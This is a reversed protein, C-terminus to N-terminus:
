NTIPGTTYNLPQRAGQKEDLTSNLHDEFFEAISGTRKYNLFKLVPGRTGKKRFSYFYVYLDDDIVIVSMTPYTDRVYFRFRDKWYDGGASNRAVQFSRIKERIRVRNEHATPGEDVRREEVAHGEPDLLVLRVNLNSSHMLSRTLDDIDLNDLVIGEASVERKAGEILKEWDISSYDQFTYLPHPLAVIFPVPVIAFAIVAAIPSWIQSGAKTALVVLYVGVAFFLVAPQLIYPELRLGFWGPVELLVAAIIACVIAEIHPHDVQKTEAAPPRTPTSMMTERHTIGLMRTL